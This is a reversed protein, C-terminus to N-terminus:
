KLFVEINIPRFSWGDVGVDYSYPEPNIITHHTHGFLHISSKNGKHSGKWSRMPYHMMCIRRGDIKIEHYDKVTNWGKFKFTKKHDHNGAILIKNGKLSNLIKELEPYKITPVYASFDGLVYVIDNKTVISNWNTILADHMESLNKFPRNCHSIINKHFFHHDSTAYIEM